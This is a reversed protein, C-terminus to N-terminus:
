LVSAFRSQLAQFMFAARSLESKMVGAIKALLMERPEITALAQAEASSLVRGEMYGGRIELTRFRRNAEVLGKAAGIPDGDVFAVATPGQLLGELGEVGAKGAALKLLTNK